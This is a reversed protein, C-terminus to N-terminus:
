KGRCAALLEDERHAVLYPEVQRLLKRSEDLNGLQRDIACLYARARLVTRELVEKEPRAQFESVAQELLKKAEAPNGLRWLIVGRLMRVSSKAQPNMQLAEARALADSAEQPRNLRLALSSAVGIWTSAMDPKEAAAALRLELGQEYQRGVEYIGALHTNFMWLPLTPSIEQRSYEQVAQDLQRLGALALSRNRALEAETVTIGTLKRSRRLRDVCRLVERWDGRAKARNLRAYNRSTQRKYVISGLVYLAAGIFGFVGILVTSREKRVLGEGILGLLCACPFRAAWLATLWLKPLSKRGARLRAVEVDPLVPPREIQRESQMRARVVDAIENKELQLDTWGRETLLRFAHQANEADIRESRRRGSRDKGTWLFSHV